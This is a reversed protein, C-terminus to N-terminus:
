KLRAPECKVVSPASAAPWPRVRSLPTHPGAAPPPVGKSARLTEVVVEVRLMPLILDFSSPSLTAFGVIITDLQHVTTPGDTWDSSERTM